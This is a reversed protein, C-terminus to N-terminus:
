EKPLITKKNIIANKEIEEKSLKYVSRLDVGSFNSKKIIADAFSTNVLDAGVFSAGELNAGDFVSGTLNSNYFVANRLEASDFHVEILDSNSLLNDHLDLMRLDTKSLDVRLNGDIRITKSIVSLAAQAVESRREPLPTGSWAFNDRVYSSLIDIIVARSDEHNAVLQEMSYIAGIKVYEKESGMLSIVNNIQDAIDKEKSQL